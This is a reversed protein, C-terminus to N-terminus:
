LLSLEDENVFRTAGAALLFKVRNFNPNDKELVDAILTLADPLELSQDLAKALAVYDRRTM